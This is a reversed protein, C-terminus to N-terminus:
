TCIRLDKRAVINSSLTLCWHLWHHFITIYFMSISVKWDNKTRLEIESKYLLLAKSPLPIM